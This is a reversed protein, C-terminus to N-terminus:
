LFCKSVPPFQPMAVPHICNIMGTRSLYQVYCTVPLASVDVLFVAHPGWRRGVFLGTTGLIHRSPYQGSGLSVPAGRPQSRQHEM